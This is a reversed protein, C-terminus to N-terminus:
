DLSIGLRKRARRLPKDTIGVARAERTVDSIEREGEALASRLFDVAEDQASRQEEDGSISLIRGATLTSEGTWWFRGDEIKFGIAPGFPALNNKTQAMARQAKDDPDAGVMLM